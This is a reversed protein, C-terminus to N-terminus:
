GCSSAPLNQGIVRETTRHTNKLYDDNCESIQCVAQENRSSQPWDGKTLVSSFRMVTRMSFGTSKLERIFFEKIVNSKHCCLQPATIIEQEVLILFLLM